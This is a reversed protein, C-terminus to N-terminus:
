VIGPHICNYQYFYVPLGARSLVGMVPTNRLKPACSPVPFLPSMLGPHAKGEVSPKSRCTCTQQEARAPCKGKQWPNRGGPSNPQDLPWSASCNHLHIPSRWFRAGLPSCQYQDQGKEPGPEVGQAQGQTCQGAELLHDQLIKPWAASSRHSGSGGEPPPHVPSARGKFDPGCRRGAPVATVGITRTTQQSACQHRTKEVM